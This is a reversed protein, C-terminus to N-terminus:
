LLYVFVDTSIEEAGNTGLMEDDGIGGFGDGFFVDAHGIEVGVLEVVEDFVGGPLGSTKIKFVFEDEDDVFM